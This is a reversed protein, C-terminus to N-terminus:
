SITFNLDVFVRFVMGSHYKVGLVVPDEDNVSDEVNGRNQEAMSGLTFLIRYLFPRHDLKRSPGVPVFNFFQHNM